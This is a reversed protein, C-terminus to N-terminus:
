INIIELEERFARTWSVSKEFCNKQLSPLFHTDIVSRCSRRGSGCPSDAFDPDSLATVASFSKLYHMNGRGFFLWCQGEQLAWQASWIFRCQLHHIQVKPKLAKWWFQEWHSERHACCSSRKHWPPLQLWLGASVSANGPPRGWLSMRAIILM